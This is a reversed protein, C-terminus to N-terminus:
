KFRLAVRAYAARMGKDFVEKDEGTHTVEANPCPESYQKHKRSFSRIGTGLCIQCSAKCRSEIKTTGEQRSGDEKLPHLYGSNDM